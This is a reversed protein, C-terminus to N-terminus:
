NQYFAAGFVVGLVLGILIQWSQSLHIKKIKSMFKDKLDSNHLKSQSM